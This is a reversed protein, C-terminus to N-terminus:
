YLDYLAETCVIAYISPYIWGFEYHTYCVLALLYIFGDLNMFHPAFWHWSSFLKEAGGQTDDDEGTCM